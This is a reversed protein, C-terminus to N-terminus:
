AVKKALYALDSVTDLAMEIENLHPLVAGTMAPLLIQVIRGFYKELKEEPASKDSWIERCLEGLRTSTLAQSTTEEHPEWYIHDRCHDELVKLNCSEILMKLNHRNFYFLHFPPIWTLHPACGFGVIFSNNGLVTEIFRHYFSDINPIASLMLVGGPKLFAQLKMITAKPDLVHELVSSMHVCDFSGEKFPASEVTGLYVNNFGLKQATNVNNPNLEVAYVDWGQERALNLFLCNGIGVELIKGEGRHSGLIELDRKLRQDGGEPYCGSAEYITDFYSKEPIPDLFILRCKVCQILYFADKGTISTYLQGTSPLGTAWFPVTKRLLFEEGGCVVCHTKKPATQTGLSSVKLSEM